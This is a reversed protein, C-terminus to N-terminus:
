TGKTDCDGRGRRGERVETFNAPEETFECETSKRPRYIREKKKEGRRFATQKGNGGIDLLENNVKIGCNIGTRNAQRIDKHWFSM